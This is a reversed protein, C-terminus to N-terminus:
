GRALAKRWWSTRPAAPEVRRPNRTTARVAYRALTEVAVRAVDEEAVVALPAIQSERPRLTGLDGHIVYGGSELAAITAETYEEVWGRHEPTLRLRASAEHPLVGKVFPWRIARAYDRYAPLDDGVALTVRRLVEAEVSGFSTNVAAEPRAIVADDFGVIAGTERFIKEPDASTIPVVHIREPPVLGVFRGLVTLPDQREWFRRAWVGDRDRVADLFDAFSLTMRHKLFQQYDSPIQAAWGRVTLILHLETDAAEAVAVLAEAEARGVEALDENSAYLVDGPTAAIRRAAAALAAEDHEGVYAEVAQWGMPRLLHDLHEERDRFPLGVGVQALADVSDWLGAQLSSTGTKSCGLHVVFRRTM